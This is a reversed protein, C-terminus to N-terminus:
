NEKAKPRWATPLPIGHRRLSKEILHHNDMVLNYYRIFTSKSITCVDSIKQKDIVRLEPVRTCLLYIAGVCKTTTRCENKIHIYKAQAREILDVVFDRYSLEIGLMSLYRMIYDALPRINTNISIVKRDNLQNLKRDGQSLYKEETQLMSAVEKPTHAMGADLLVYYFCAAIIGRRRKGRVIENQSRLSEYLEMSRERINAPIKESYQYLITEIERRVLFKRHEVYDGCNAYYARRLYSANKGDIKFAMFAHASTNYTQEVSRDFADDDGDPARGQIKGCCPCVLQFESVICPTKCEDCMMYVDGMPEEFEADSTKVEIVENGDAFAPQGWLSSSFEIASDFCGGSFDSGFGSTWDRFDM